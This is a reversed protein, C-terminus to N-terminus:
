NIMMKTGSIIVVQIGSINPHTKFKFLILVLLTLNPPLSSLSSGIPPTYVPKENIIIFLVFLFLGTPSFCVPLCSLAPCPLAPCLVYSSGVHPLSGLRFQLCLSIIFPAFSSPLLSLLRPFHILLCTVLHTPDLCISVLACPVCFVLISAM